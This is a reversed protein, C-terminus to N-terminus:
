LPGGPGKRVLETLQSEGVLPPSRTSTSSVTRPAQYSGLGGGRGNEERTDDLLGGEGRLAHHAPIKHGRPAGGESPRRGLLGRGMEASSEDGALPLYERMIARIEGHMERQMRWRYAVVGTVSLTTAVAAFILAVVWAPLHTQAAMRGLANPVCMGPSGQGGHLTYGTNCECHYSGPDNVCIQDCGSIGLACEDIDTCTHGDGEWGAPCRCVFGRFTDVCASLSDQTWCGHRGSACEDVELGGTLCTAPETGEAFGSCVARLVGAATLSGRYQDSNIVVTPLMIVRGRGTGAEDNQASRQAELVPHPADMTSPGTCADVANADIGSATLQERACTADFRSAEMTCTAAFRSAYDWWKWPERTANATQFACLHRLNMEVVGAGNYTAAFAAPIPEVACYRRGRICEADCESTGWLCSKLMVHPTFVTYGEQELMTALDKFGQFFSQQATCIPGCSPNTTFWLEYQVRKDGHAISESWDLEATVVAPTTTGGGGSGQSLLNKIQDGASKKILVVPITLKEVLAALQPLDEPVAMTLLDEETHDAVIVAKAGANQARQAKEVFYCSGRDVLLIDSGPPLPTFFESCGQANDQRYVVQGVLIAGYSPVGFDGIASPFSAAFGQSKIRVTSREVIFNASRAHAM